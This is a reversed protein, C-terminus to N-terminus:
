PKIELLGEAVTLVRGLLTSDGRSRAMEFQAHIKLLKRLTALSTTDKAKARVADFRAILSDLDTRGSEAQSCDIPSQEAPENLGVSELMEDLIGNAQATNGEKVLKEIEQGKM